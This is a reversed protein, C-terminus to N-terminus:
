LEFMNMSGNQILEERTVLNYHLCAVLSAGQEAFKKNKEWFTSLYRKEGIMLTSRFLTGKQETTYKPFM